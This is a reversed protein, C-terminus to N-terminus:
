IRDCASQTPEVNGCRSHHSYSEGCNQGGTFSPELNGYSLQQLAQFIHEVHFVQMKSVRLLEFFGMTKHVDATQEDLYRQLWLRKFGTQDPTLISFWFWFRPPPFGLELLFFDHPLDLEPHNITLQYIAFMEFDLNPHLIHTFIQPNRTNKLWTQGERWNM